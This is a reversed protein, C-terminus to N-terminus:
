FRLTEDHGLGTVAGTITLRKELHHNVEEFLEREDLAVKQNEALLAEISPARRVEYYRHNLEKLKFVGLLHIQIEAVVPLRGDIHVNILM